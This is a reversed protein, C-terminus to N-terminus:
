KGLKTKLEKAESLTFKRNEKFEKICYDINKLGKSRLMEKEACVKAIFYSFILKGKPYKKISSELFDIAEKPKNLKEYLIKFPREYYFVNNNYGKEIQLKWNKLADNYLGMDEYLQAKQSYAEDKAFFENKEGVEFLQELLNSNKEAIVLYLLYYFDDQDLNFEIGYNQLTSNSKDKLYDSVSLKNENVKTEFDNYNRYDSFMFMLADNLSKVVLDLHGANYVEEKLKVGINTNNKFISDLKKGTAFRYKDDKTGSSVFYYLNKNRKEKLTKNLNEIQEKLLDPTIAIIGQFPNNPMSIIQSALTATNSHGILVNFGSVSYNSNILPIIEKYLHNRLKESGELFQNTPINIDSGYNPTTEYNRDNHFIGVVICNPLVNYKALYNEYNTTIEFLEYGDLTYIVPYKQQKDYNPPLYIKVNREDKFFDSKLKEVKYEYKLTDKIESQGFSSISLFLIVIAFIKNM